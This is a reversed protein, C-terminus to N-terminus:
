ASARLHPEWLWSLAAERAALPVVARAAARFPDPARVELPLPRRAVVEGALARRVTDLNDVCRTARLVTARSSRLETLAGRALSLLRQRVLPAAGAAGHLRTAERHADLAAGELYEALATLGRPDVTYPRWVWALAQRRLQWPVLRRSLM